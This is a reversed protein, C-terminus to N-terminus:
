LFVCFCLSKISRSKNYVITFRLNVKTSKHKRPIKHKFNYSLDKYVNVHTIPGRQTPYIIKSAYEAYYFKAHAGGPGFEKLQMCNKPFKGLIMHQYGGSPQRGWRPSIRSGGSIHTVNLDNRIPVLSLQIVLPQRQNNRAKGMSLFILDTTMLAYSLVVNETIISSDLTYM